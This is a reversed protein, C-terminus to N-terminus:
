HFDARTHRNELADRERVRKKEEWKRVCQRKRTDTKITKLGKAQLDNLGKEMLRATNRMLSKVAKNFCSLVHTIGRSEKDALSMLFEYLKDKKKQAKLIKRVILSVDDVGM